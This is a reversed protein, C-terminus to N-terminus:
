TNDRSKFSLFAVSRWLLLPVCVVRDRSRMMHLGNENGSDISKNGGVKSYDTRPGLLVESCASESCKYSFYISKPGSIALCANEASKSLGGAGARRHVMPHPRLIGGWAYPVSGALLM